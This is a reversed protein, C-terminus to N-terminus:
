PDPFLCGASKSDRCFIHFCFRANRSYFCRGAPLGSSGKFHHSGSDTMIKGSPECWFYQGKEPLTDLRFRRLRVRATHLATKPHLQCYQRSTKHMKATAGRVPAHISINQLRFTPHIYRDSGARSRPNFYLHLHQADIRLNDSGARSRPNFHIFLYRGVYRVPDSGARSRPNFNFSMSRSSVVFHDSGARSRPNFNAAM